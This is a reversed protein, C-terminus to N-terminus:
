PTHGNCGFRSTASATRTAEWLAPTCFHLKTRLTPVTSIGATGFTPCRCGVAVAFFVRSSVIYGHCPLPMLVPAPLVARAGKAELWCWSRLVIQWRCGTGFAIRPSTTGKASIGGCRDGVYVWVADAIMPALSTICKKALQRNPSHSRHSRARTAAFTSSLTSSSVDAPLLSRNWTPGAAQERTSGRVKIGGSELM